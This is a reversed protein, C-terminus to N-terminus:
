RTDLVPWSFSAPHQLCSSMITFKDFLCVFFFTQKSASRSFSMWLISELAWLPCCCSVVRWARSFFLHLCSLTLRLYVSSLRLPTDRNEVCWACLMISERM